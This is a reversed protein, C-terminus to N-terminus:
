LASQRSKSIPPHHLANWGFCTYQCLGPSLTNSIGKQVENQGQQGQHEKSSCLDSAQVSKGRSKRALLIGLYIEVILCKRTTRHSLSWAGLTPAGPEIGPQPILDWMGCSLNLHSALLDQTGCSLGPAALNLFFFTYIEVILPATLSRFYLRFRSAKIGQCNSNM